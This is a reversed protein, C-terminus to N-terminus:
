RLDYPQWTNSCLSLQSRVMILLTFKEWTAFKWPQRQWNQSCCVLTGSVLVKGGEKREAYPQPYTPYCCSTSTVHETEKTRVQFNQNQFPFANGSSCVDSTDGGGWMMVVSLYINHEGKIISSVSDWLTSIIPEYNCLNYNATNIWTGTAM